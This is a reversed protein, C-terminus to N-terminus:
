DGCAPRSSDRRRAGLEALMTYSGGLVAVRRFGHRQYLAIARGNAPGVSLSLAAFGAARARELLTQMLSAGIGQGRRDAVVAIALEPTAADVYGHGPATAPFLRYWAAGVPHGRGDEAVLGADGLRGWGDLYRASMPDGRVDSLSRLPPAPDWNATACLMLELFPRDTM